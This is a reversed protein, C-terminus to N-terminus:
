PPGNYLWYWLARLYSGEYAMFAFEGEETTLPLVESLWAGAGVLTSCGDNVCMRLPLGMYICRRWEAGCDPCRRVGARGINRHARSARWMVPQHDVVANLALVM